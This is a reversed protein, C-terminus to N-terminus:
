GARRHRRRYALIAKAPWLNGWEGAILRWAIESAAVLVVGTAIAALWGYYHLVTAPVVIRVLWDVIGLVAIIPTWPRATPQEGMHCANWPRRGREM